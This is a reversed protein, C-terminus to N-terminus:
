TRTQRKIQLKQMERDYIIQGGPVRMDRVVELAHRSVEPRIVSVLLASVVAVPFGVSAAIASPIFFTGNESSVIAFAAAAFGALIGAIAGATTLRKWWISLVIVPFLAASTLGLAWLVMQVPDAPAMATLVMGWIAAMAIAGRAIWVRRENKAPEWSMGHLLDEGVITGLALMTAGIAAMAAAFGGAILLYVFSVPLGSAIPLTLLVSDRDIKLQTFDLRALSPDFAIFGFDRAVTLWEPLPSIRDNLVADLMFYRLFVAASSITLILFGAFVTAWGISKRAEYVGPAAAVRPLLWPAAAVGAAIMFSSVIFALPGVAGFAQTYPKAVSQLGEPPLGFALPWVTILQLGQNVEQRVLGRVLPGNALQPVPLGTQLTSVVVAVILVALMLALSQAVATWTFSRAGGPAIAFVGIAAAVAIMVSPPIGTLGSALTGALKLEAALVLLMPVIAVLATVIRLARSDFRRGLYSPVTFAGFKRYFPAIVMAMLIFGTLLGTMLILADFGAFFFLGTGSILFTAGLSSMALVIGSYAAPVRRGAAFFGFTDSTTVSVGIALYLLVPAALFALRLLGDDFRLQEFILTLLFIAVFLSAFISFYTGLRPNVLRQRASLSM